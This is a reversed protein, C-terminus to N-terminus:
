RRDATVIRVARAQDNRLCTATFYPWVQKSCDGAADEKVTTASTTVEEGASAPAALGVYAIAVLLSLSSLNKM